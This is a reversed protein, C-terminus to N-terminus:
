DKKKDPNWIMSATIAHGYYFTTVPWDRKRPKYTLPYVEYHYTVMLYEQSVLMQLPLSLDLRVGKFVYGRTGLIVEVYSVGDHHPSWQKYKSYHAEIEEAVIAAIQTTTIAVM